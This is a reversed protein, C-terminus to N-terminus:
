NSSEKSINEELFELPSTKSIKPLDQAQAIVDSFNAGMVSHSSFGIKSNPIANSDRLASQRIQEVPLADFKSWDIGKKIATPSLNQESKINRTTEAINQLNSDNKESESGSATNSDSLVKVNESDLSGLHIRNSPSKAARRCYFYIQSQSNIVLYPNDGKGNQGGHVRDCISCYSEKNRRLTVLGTNKFEAITFEEGFRQNLIEEVQFEAAGSIELKRLNKSSLPVTIPILCCETIDTICSRRFLQLQDCDVGQWDIQQDKWNYCFLPMKPREGKKYSYVMRFNTNSKYIDPDLIQLRYALRLDCDSNRVVRRCFEAAERHNQHYFSSLVLHCSFKKETSEPDILNDSHATFIQLDRQLDFELNLQELTTVIGSILQNRITTGLEAVDRGMATELNLDIDFRPKQGQSADINEHYELISSDARLYRYFEVSSRFAAFRRRVLSPDRDSFDARCVIFYGNIGNGRIGGPLNDVLNTKGKKNLYNYWREGVPRPIM